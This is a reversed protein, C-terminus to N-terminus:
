RAVDSFISRTSGPAKPVEPPLDKGSWVVDPKPFRVKMRITAAEMMYKAHEILGPVEEDGEFLEELINVASRYDDFGMEVDWHDSANEEIAEAREELNPLTNRVEMAFKILDRPDFLDLLDSEELFSADLSYSFRTRMRDVLEERFEDALLGLPYLRAATRLKPDYAIKSWYQNDRRLLDPELELVARLCDRSARTALFEYLSQNAGPEDPIERLRNVLLSLQAAPIVVADKIIDADFCVVESLIDRWHAGRLYLDTLEPRRGLIESLADVITPHKFAWWSRRQDTARVVFSKDIELLAEGLSIKDVGYAKAVLDWTMDSGANAPLQGRHIYVLALAAQHVRDLEEIVEILHSKPARVFALLSAHSVGLRATYLPDGLRRAIEPIFRSEDAIADLHQAVADKWTTTQQGAKIHNYLIQQREDNTLDGVDVIAGESRFAPHNRTGLKSKAAEYIHRRSTLVFRNGAAIAAQVKPMISIWHDVYDARMQTAGFADDVWYFRNRENPNWRDSLDMPGECKLSEHGEGESMTTALIAAITSKGTAPEGLLLVIGTEALRRIANRHAGTPVYVRLTDVLHGLLQKTQAARREDLITSLDGLGYVRPVLARLQASRRISWTLFEGGLVHPFKVGMAVLRARLSVAVPADVGMNTLLVYTEAQGSAVLERVAEEEKSLDSVRLRRAADSTFKCQVTGVGTKPRTAQGMLFVADQGGDQAERYISVTRGLVEECVQACLDQFAKWGLTHLALSIWPGQAQAVMKIM